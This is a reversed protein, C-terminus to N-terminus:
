KGRNRRLLLLTSVMLLLATGTEPISENPVEVLVLKKSGDPAVLEVALRELPPNEQWEPMAAQPGNGFVAPTGLWAALCIWKMKFISRL